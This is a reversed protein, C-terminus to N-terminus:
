MYVYIYIICMNVTKLLDGRLTCCICGNHLEVMTAEEHIVKSHKIDSADLNIEGMDNVIVAIKMPRRKGGATRLVHKLLTTKGAGLFGSLVTVPMLPSGGSGPRTGLGVVPMAAWPFKKGEPDGEVIRRGDNSLVAGTEGDLLVLAPLSSIKFHGPLTTRLKQEAFPLALWPMDAYYSKFAKENRDSSVFVIEFQTPIFVGKGANM